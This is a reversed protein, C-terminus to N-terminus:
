ATWPAIAVIEIPGEALSVRDGAKSGLLRQAFESQYSYISEEPKSDWPGLITVERERGSEERLKVRTGVRVESTDIRAADLPRTRSLEDALTAIRASLYEHKQRAAHYEFNERLDGHEKATKMAQANAPLEVSKLHIIEARRAEISEATAYLYERAPARLGPFKMLLAERVTARRHEELGAVRSLAHLFDRAEEESAAGRVLAVALGGPEFFDKLRARMGSMEDMRLADTITLFLSPPEARNEAHMREVIWVFARPASRPSRLIRRSLDAARDGLADFLFTLVRADEERAIQEVFIEAWDARRARIAQLAKERAQHDRVEALARRVDSADAFSEASIAEPEGPALRAASQSLEWALAPRQSALRRADAALLGAMWRSLDKSRKAHKRALDMRKAPDGAEFASRVTQEAADASESWSVKASKASGAVLLQPHRRASTWFSSWRDEPILGAFHEKVEQLTLTRGFSELLRHVAKSPEAESEAALGKPDEVKRRLFHGPPMLTLNREASVLSLPVRAGAIEVRMVDLAPNMEVLRGAGRGPMLYIEGPQFRLWRAVRGATESLDTAKDVPFKAMVAGLAPHGAFRKKLTAALEGRVDPDKPSMRAIELLVSVRADQNPGDLENALMHLWGVPTDGAGKKKAAAAVGFFFPLDTPDESARKTWLAELDQFKKEDILRQADAPLAPPPMSSM